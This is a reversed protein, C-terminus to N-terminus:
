KSREPKPVRKAQVGRYAVVYGTNVRRLEINNETANKDLRQNTRRGSEDSEAMSRKSRLWTRQEFEQERLLGNDDGKGSPVKECKKM